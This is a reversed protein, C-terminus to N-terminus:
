LQHKNRLNTIFTAISLTRGHSSQFLWGVEILVVYGKSSKIIDKWAYICLGLESYFTKRKEREIWVSNFKASIIGKPRDKQWFSKKIAIKSLVSHGKLTAEKKIRYSSLVVCLVCQIVYAFFYDNRLPNNEFCKQTNHIYWLHHLWGPPKMKQKFDQFPLKKPPTGWKEAGISHEICMNGNIFKIAM